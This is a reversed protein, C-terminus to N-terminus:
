DPDVLTEYQFLNHLTTLLKALEAHPCGVNWIMSRASGDAAVRIFSMSPADNMCPLGPPPVNVSIERPLTDLKAEDLAAQAETWISPDFNGTMTGTSRTYVFNELTYSGDPRVTISYSPCHFYCVSEVLKVAVDQRQLPAEPTPTSCAALALVALAIIRIM